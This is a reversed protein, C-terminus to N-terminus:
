FFYSFTPFTPFLLFAPLGAFPLLELFYQLITVIHVAACSISETQRPLIVYFILSDSLFTHQHFLIIAVM